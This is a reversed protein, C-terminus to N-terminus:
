DSDAYEELQLKRALEADSALRDYGSSSPQQSRITTATASAASPASGTTALAQSPPDRQASKRHTPPPFLGPRPLSASNANRQSSGDGVAATGSAGSGFFRSRGSRSPFTGAGHVASVRSIVDLLGFVVRDMGAVWALGAVIGGLHGVLSTGPVFLQTLFLEAWSALRTPIQMGYVNTVSPADARFSLITKMAFLVGSFGVAREELWEPSDFGVDAIICMALTALPTLAFLAVLMAVYRPAGLAPELQSEKWLLSLMNYGLHLSSLHLWQSGLMRAWADTSGVGHRLIHLGSFAYHRILSSQGSVGFFVYVQLAIVALTFLPRRGRPMRMVEQLLLLLVLMGLGDGQQARHRMM